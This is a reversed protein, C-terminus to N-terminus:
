PLIPSRHSRGDSPRVCWPARIRQRERRNDTPLGGVAATGRASPRFRIGDRWVSGPAVYFSTGCRVFINTRLLWQRSQGGGLPHEPVNLQPGSRGLGEATCIPAPSVNSMITRNAFDSYIPRNQTGFRLQLRYQLHSRSMTASRARSDRQKRSYAIRGRYHDYAGTRFEANM